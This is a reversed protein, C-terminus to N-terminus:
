TKRLVFRMGAFLMDIKKQIIFIIKTISSTTKLEPWLM